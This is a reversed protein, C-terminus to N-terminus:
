GGATASPTDLGLRGWRLVLTTGEGVTSSVSLEGGVEAARELMSALGLHSPDHATPDFGRGNDRVSLELGSPGTRLDVYADSAGAHRVM